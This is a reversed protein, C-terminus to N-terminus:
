QEEKKNATTDQQKLHKIIFQVMQLRTKEPVGHGGENRIDLLLERKQTSEYLNCIWNHIGETGPFIPDKMGSAIVLPKPHVLGIINQMNMGVEKDM